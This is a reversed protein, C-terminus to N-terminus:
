YEKLKKHIAFDCVNKQTNDFDTRFVELIHVSNEVVSLCDSWKGEFMNDIHKQIEKKCKDELSDAFKKIIEKLNKPNRYHDPSCWWMVWINNFLQPILKSTESLKAKHIENALPEICKLAKNVEEAEKLKVKLEEKRIHFQEVEKNKRRSKFVDFIKILEKNELQSSLSSLNNRRKEWFKLEKDIGIMNEVLHEKNEASMENAIQQNWSNMINELRQELDKDQLAHETLNEKPIFLRTQGKRQYCYDTTVCM